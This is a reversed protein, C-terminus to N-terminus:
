KFWEYTNQVSPEPLKFHSPLPLICSRGQNVIKGLACDQLPFMNKKVSFNLGTKPTSLKTAGKLTFHYLCQTRHATKNPRQSVNHQMNFSCMEKSTNSIKLAGGYKFFGAKMYTQLIVYKMNHGHCQELYAYKLDNTMAEFESM